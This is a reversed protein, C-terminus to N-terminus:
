DSLHNSTGAKPTLSSLSPRPTRPIMTPANGVLVGQCDSLSDHEAHNNDRDAINDKNERSGDYTNDQSISILPLRLYMFSLIASAKAAPM